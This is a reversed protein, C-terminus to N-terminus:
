VPLVCFATLHPHSLYCPDPLHTSVLVAFLVQEKAAPCSMNTHVTENVDTIRFLVLLVQGAM